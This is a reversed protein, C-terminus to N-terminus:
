VMQGCGQDQFGCTLFPAPPNLPQQQPGALSSSLLPSCLAPPPPPLLRPSAPTSHPLRQLNNCLSTNQCTKSSNNRKSLPAFAPNPALAPAPLGTILIGYRDLLSITSAQLRSSFASSTLLPAREPLARFHRHGLECISKRTRHSCSPLRTKVQAWVPPVM